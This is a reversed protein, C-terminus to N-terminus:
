RTGERVTVFLFLQESRMLSFVRETNGSCFCTYESIRLVMHGAGGLPQSHPEVSNKVQLSLVYEFDIAVLLDQSHYM